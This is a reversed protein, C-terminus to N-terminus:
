YWSPTYRMWSIAFHSHLGQVYRPMFLKELTENDRLLSPLEMRIATAHSRTVNYECNIHLTKLTTNKTRLFSLAELWLCTDNDGSKINTLTLTELTSNKGLGLRM